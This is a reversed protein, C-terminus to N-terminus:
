IDERGGAQGPLSDKILSLIEKNRRTLEPLKLRKM